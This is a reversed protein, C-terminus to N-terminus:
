QVCSVTWNYVSVINKAGREEDKSGVEVEEEVREVDVGPLVSILVRASQILTHICSCPISSEV